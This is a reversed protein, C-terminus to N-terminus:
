PKSANLSARLDKYHTQIEEPTVLGLYPLTLRFASVDPLRARFADRQEPPLHAATALMTAFAMAADDMLRELTRTAAKERAGDSMMVIRNRRVIYQARSLGVKRAAETTGLRMVKRIQADSVKFRPGSRRGQQVANDQGQKIAKSRDNTM